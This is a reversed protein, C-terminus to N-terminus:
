VMAPAAARPVSRAQALEERVIRGLISLGRRIDEPELAGFSLRLAAADHREVEFYRGPVYAVGERHARALLLGADLPEPLRVWINMGGEPRTFQTGAPLFEECAALAARLREAGAAVVRAVHAALRGTEAFRLLVAQSLQDTHLDALQKAEALKAILAAPGSIWGVRLGPFAIKSFSRLLVVRGDGDLQKLAPLPQGAYRLEGYIDNEIVALGRVRAARLLEPRADLPLTGGTPSQFNPTTVLLRAEPAAELAAPSIGSSGVPLAALHAGAQLFLNRVGPYVPDEVLVTEGPRVLTRQLLDLAQQCGNTILVDDGDSVLGSRRGETILYERLPAYGYPSGLQLISRAAPSALVEECTRRFEDLPFLGAAPRAASFSIVGEPEPPLAAAAAAPERMWDPAVPREGPGAVFSGRGVHGRVLGETELLEYAAAVTTRNLGLMGALDRTAPIREGPRLAGSTIADRILTYVQRYLPVASEPELQLRPFM